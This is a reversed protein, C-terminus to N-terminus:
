GARRYYELEMSFDSNCRVNMASSVQSYKTSPYSTVKRMKAFLCSRNTKSTFKRACLGCGCLSLTQLTPLRGYFLTIEYLQGLINSVHMKGVGDCVYKAWKKRKACYRAYFLKAHKKTLQM